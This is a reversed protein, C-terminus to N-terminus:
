KREFYPDNPLQHFVESDPYAQKYCSNNIGDEIEIYIETIDYKILKGTQPNTSGMQFSSHKTSYLPHIAVLSQIFKIPDEIIAKKESDFSVYRALKDNTAKYVNREMDDFCVEDGNDFKTKCCIRFKIDCIELLTNM